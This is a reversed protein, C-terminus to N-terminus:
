EPM